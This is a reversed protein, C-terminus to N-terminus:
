TYNHGEADDSYQLNDSAIECCLGVKVNLVNVFAFVSFVVLCVLVIQISKSLFKNQFIKKKLM